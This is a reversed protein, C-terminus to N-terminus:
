LTASVMILPPFASHVDFLACGQGHWFQECPGEASFVPLPDRRFWGDHGGVVWNTVPSFHVSSSITDVKDGRRGCAFRQTSATYIQLRSAQVFDVTKQLDQCCGWLKERLQTRQLWMQCQLASQAPCHQLATNLPRPDHWAPVTLWTPLQSKESTM